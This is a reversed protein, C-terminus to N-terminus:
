RWCLLASQLTSVRTSPRRVETENTLPTTSSSCTFLVCFALSTASSSPSLGSQARSPPAVDRRCVLATTAPSPRADYSASVSDCGDTELPRVHVGCRDHTLPCVPLPVDPEVIFELRFLGQHVLLHPLVGPLVGDVALLHLPAVDGLLDAEQVRAFWEGGRGKSDM